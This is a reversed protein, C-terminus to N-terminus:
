RILKKREEEFELETLLGRNKLIDLQRLEELLEVGLEEKNIQTRKYGAKVFDLFDDQIRLYALTPNSEINEIDKFGKHVALELYEFGKTPNEKMAYLCALDYLLRPHNPALRLAKLYAKEALDFQYEKFYKLGEAHLKKFIEKRKARETRDGSFTENSNYSTTEVRHRPKVRSRSQHTNKRNAKRQARKTRKRSRRSVKDINNYKEDFEDQSMTLLLIGDIFGIIASLPPVIFYLIGLFTQGLYFRHVGFVGLLIALIGATTKDKM